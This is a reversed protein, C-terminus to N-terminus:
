CLVGGSSGRRAAGTFGQLFSPPSKASFAEVATGGRQGRSARFSPLRPNLLSRRWQQGAASGGTFGQLFSPPSKASFAEVAAGGRGTFGQLFSPPSKASFAEVAAGGRQGRSARFSPLRPNLLSRRWQQGAAGRSARFSPLRPNLLSRRWQQGAASGGTFGQLFSPPSKASFAEVAAGGRAGTFGQLFSPPSKASFAEVAAGGRQGRSARFSPLRPNLLSRRWQQGAARAAGRSARFSPLRPNLLSRRWQQGAASGGTFGQLFSPPSKASFAEVTAGGRAGTFGQLFSPPSKASFAEVAAGGRQGRSARFSPLRPNLLSRRWQQRAASGGRGGRSPGFRWEVAGRRTIAEALGDTEGDREEAEGWPRLPLLWCVHSFSAEDCRQRLPKGGLAHDAPRTPPLWVGTFAPRADDWCAREGVAQACTPSFIFSHLICRYSFSHRSSSTTAIVAFAFLSLALAFLLTFINLSSHNRLRIGSPDFSWPRASALLPVEGEEGQREEAPSCHDAPCCHHRGHTMGSGVDWLHLAAGVWGDWLHLAAAEAGGTAVRWLMGKLGLMAEALGDTAGDREEAEGWPRLPLLWCVHSSSAEDCRQRRAAAEGWTGGGRRAESRTTLLAPLLCGCARSEQGGWAWAHHGLTVDARHRQLSPCSLVHLCPPSGACSTLLLTAGQGKQQRHRSPLCACEAKSSATHLNAAAAFAMGGSGDSGGGRQWALYPFHNTLSISFLEEPAGATTLLMAETTLLMAETTLLMAETTLLMAETTLLMAETTLLMAETTLLMAETTLLMAETTLLMAETTLLMAETTLLMAETTLLM